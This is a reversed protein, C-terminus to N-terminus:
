VGRSLSVNKALPNSAGMSSASAPAAASRASVNRVNIYAFVQEAVIKATINRDAM